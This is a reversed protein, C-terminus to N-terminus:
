ASLEKVKAIMRQQGELDPAIPTVNLVTVGAAKFQAIRDKVYGEDGCLSTEELFSEPVAAAAEQKKGDLYLDQIQKAEAEYGYRQFLQNYFNRDRAGMGGVYLAVMGRTFDRFGGVQSEPGISLLGGAIVDLPGLEASRKALGADVDAGWVDKAREPHFLIPLWGDALEATMQVNKPGLSAVHIPIDARRPHTIMKLPKGLGTGQGEPLPLQYRKGDHVVPEERKWVKRCIDIIERTRGIPADYPVGHFGEIVQPGSAGLGLIARGGSLEDLGAATMALLTPTRTYIPLIGSAIQITETEAALYGMLTPADYGYAEAVYVIDMGAKELAQVQAVSEAFGGSYGIQMSLKM